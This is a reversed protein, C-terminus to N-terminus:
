ASADLLRDIYAALRVLIAADRGLSRHTDFRPPGKRYKAAHRRMGRKMHSSSTSLDGRRSRWLTPTPRPIGASLRDATAFAREAIRDPRGPEIVVVKIGFESVERRLADSVAELRVRVRYAGYTV